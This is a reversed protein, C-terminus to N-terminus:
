IEKTGAAPPSSTVSGAQAPAILLSQTMPANPLATSPSQALLESGGLVLALLTTYITPNAKM